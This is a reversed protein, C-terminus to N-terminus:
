GYFQLLHYRDEIWVIIYVGATNYCQRVNGHCQGPGPSWQGSYLARDGLENHVGSSCQSTEGPEPSRM